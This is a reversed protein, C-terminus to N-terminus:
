RLADQRVIKTRSPRHLAGQPPRDIPEEAPASSDSLQASSGLQPQGFGSPWAGQLSATSGRGGAPPGSASSAGVSASRACSPRAQPPKSPWATGMQQQQIPVVVSSSLRGASAPRSASAQSSAGGQPGTQLMPSTMGGLTPTPPAPQVGRASAPRSSARSSAAASPVAPHCSQAQLTAGCQTAFLPPEACAASWHAGPLADCPLTPMGIHARSHSGSPAAVMANGGFGPLRAPTPTSSRARVLPISVSGAQQMVVPETIFSSAAAQEPMFATGALGAYAPAASCPRSAPECRGDQLDRLLAGIQGGLEVNAGDEAPLPEQVVRVVESRLSALRDHLAMVEHSPGQPMMHPPLYPLQQTQMMSTSGLHHSPPLPPPPPGAPQQGGRPVQHWHSHLLSPAGHCQRAAEQQMPHGPARSLEARLGEVEGRLRLLEMTKPDANDPWTGEQGHLTGLQRRVEALEVERSGSQPGAALLARSTHIVENSLAALQQRIDAVETAPLQEPACLAQACRAVEARIETLQQQLEDRTDQAILPQWWTAGDSPIAPAALPRGGAAAWQSEATTVAQPYAGAPQSRQRQLEEEMRANSRQLRNIEDELRQQQVAKEEALQQVKMRLAAERSEINALLSHVEGVNRVERTRSPSPPSLSQPQSQNTIVDQTRLPASMGVYTHNQQGFAGADRQQESEFNLVQSIGADLPRTQMRIPAAAAAQAPSQGIQGLSSTSPQQQQLQQQQQQPQSGTIAQEAQSAPGSMQQGPSDGKASRRDASSVNRASQILESIDKALQALVQPREAAQNEDGGGQENTTVRSALVEALPSVRNQNEGQGSGRMVM